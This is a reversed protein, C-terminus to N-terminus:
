ETRPRKADDSTPAAPPERKQGGGQPRAVCEHDCERGFVSANDALFVAYSTLHLDALTLPPCLSALADPTFASAPLSALHDSTRGLEPTPSTSMTVSVPQQPSSLPAEVASSAGITSMLWDLVGKPKTSAAPVQSDVVSESGPSPVAVTASANATAASAAVLVAQAVPASPLVVLVETEDVWYLNKRADLSRSDLQPVAALLLQVVDEGRISSALNRAVLVRTRDTASRAGIVSNAADAPCSPDPVSARSRGARALERAHELNLTRLRPDSVRFNFLLNSSPRLPGPVQFKTQLPTDNVSEASQAAASSDFAQARASLRAFLTGTMFADYGADHAAGQEVAAAAPKSAESTSLSVPSSLSPLSALGVQVLSPWEVVVTELEAVPGANFAKRNYPRSAPAPAVGPIPAPSPSVHTVAATAATDLAPVAPPASESVASATSAPADALAAAATSVASTSPAFIPATSTLASTTSGGAALASASAATPLAPTVPVRVTSTSQAVSYAAGLSTNFGFAAATAADASGLTSIAQKTDFVTGFASELSLAFDCVNMPLPGIFKAHIHALDLFCNHGVVPVKSEAIADIVRRLGIARDVGADAEALSRRLDCNRFVGLGGTGEGVWTLRMRKAYPFDPCDAQDSVRTGALVKSASGRGYTNEVHVHVIRRHFGRCPPLVLFPFAHPAAGAAAPGSGGFAAPFEEVDLSQATTTSSSTPDAGEGEAFGGM